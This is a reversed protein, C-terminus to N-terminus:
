GNQSSRLFSQQTINAVNSNSNANPNPYKGLFKLINL